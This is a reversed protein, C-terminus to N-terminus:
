IERAMPLTHDAFFPYDQKVKPKTLRKITTHIM